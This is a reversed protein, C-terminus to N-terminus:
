IYYSQLKKIKALKSRKLHKIVKLNTIKKNNLIAERLVLIERNLINFVVTNKSKYKIDVFPNYIKIYEQEEADINIILKYYLIMLINQPLDIENSLKNFEDEKDLCLLTYCKRLIVDELRVKNKFILCMKNCLNINDIYNEKEHNIDFEKIFINYCRQEKIFNFLKM